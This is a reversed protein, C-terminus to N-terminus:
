LQLKQPMQYGPQSPHVHWDPALHVTTQQLASPGYSCPSLDLQDHMPSSVVLLFFILQQQALLLHTKAVSLLHCWDASSWQVVISVAPLHQAKAAPPELYHWCPPLLPAIRTLQGYKRVKFFYFPAWVAKPQQLMRKRKKQKRTTEQLLSVQRNKNQISESKSTKFGQKWPLSM